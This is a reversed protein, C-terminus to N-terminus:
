EARAINSKTSFCECVHRFIRKFLAIPCCEYIRPKQIPYITGVSYKLSLEFSNNFTESGKQGKGERSPHNEHLSTRGFM